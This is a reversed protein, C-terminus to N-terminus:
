IHLVSIENYSFNEGATVTVIKCTCRMIIPAARLKGETSQELFTSGHYIVCRYIPEILHKDLLKIMMLSFSQHLGYIAPPFKTCCHVVAANYSKCTPSVDDFETMHNSIPLLFFPSFAMYSNHLAIRSDHNNDMQNWFHMVLHILEAGVEKVTAEMETQYQIMPEVIDVDQCIVGIVPLHTM